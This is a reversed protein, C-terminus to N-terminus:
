VLCMLLPRGMHANQTDSLESYLRELRDMVTSHALFPMLNARLRPLLEPEDLLRQLNRALDDANDVQFLLGNREHQILEAIGGLNSGVM